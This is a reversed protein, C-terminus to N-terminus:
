KVFDATFPLPVEETQGDAKVWKAAGDTSTDLVVNSAQILAANIDIKYGSANQQATSALRFSDMLNTTFADPAVIQDYYYVVTVKTGDTTATNKVWGTAPEGIVVQSNDYTVQVAIYADFTSTNRVKAEKTYDTNQVLNTYTLDIPQFEGLADETTVGDNGDDSLDVDEVSDTSWEYITVGKDYGDGTGATSIVNEADDEATFYALSAGIVMTVSLAAATIILSSKKKM